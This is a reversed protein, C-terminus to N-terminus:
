PFEALKPTCNGTTILNCRFLDPDGVPIYSQRIASRKATDKMTDATEQLQTKRAGCLRLLRRPGRAVLAHIRSDRSDASRLFIFPCSYFLNPRGFFVHGFQPRRSRGFDELFIPSLPLAAEFCGVHRGIPTAINNERSHRIRSACNNVMVMRDNEPRWGRLDDRAGRYVGYHNRMLDRLRVRCTVDRQRPTRFAM